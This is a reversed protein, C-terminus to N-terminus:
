PAPPAQTLLWAVVCVGIFSLASLLVAAALWGKQGRLAKRVRGMVEAPSNRAEQGVEAVSVAVSQLVTAAETIKSDLADVSVSMEGVEQQLKKMSESLVNLRGRMTEALHETKQVMAKSAAQAQGSAEHLQSLGAQMEKDAGALSAKAETLADAMASRSTECLETHARAAEALSDKAGTLSVLAGELRARIEEAAAAASQAEGMEEALMRVAEEAQLIETKRAEDDM